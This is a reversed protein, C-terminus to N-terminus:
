EAINEGAGQQQRDQARQRDGDDGTEQVHKFQEDAHDLGIDKAHQGQHEDALGDDPMAAVMILVGFRGGM